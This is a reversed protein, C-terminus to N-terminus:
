ADGMEKMVNQLEAYKETWYAEVQSLGLQEATALFEDWIAQGEAEDKADLVVKAMYSQWQDQIKLLMDAEETGALPDLKTFAAFDDTQGELEFIRARVPDNVGDGRAGCCDSTMAGVWRYRNGGTYEQWAAYGENEMLDQAKGTAIMWTNDPGTWEWHLDEIGKNVNMQAEETTLFEYLMIARDPYECNKTIVLGTWGDLDYHPNFFEGVDEAAFFDLGWYNYSPDVSQIGAQGDIIRWGPGASLFLNGNKNDADQFEAGSGDFDASNVIGDKILQNILMLTDLYIPDRAVSTIVGDNELYKHRGGMSRYLMNVGSDTANISYADWILLPSTLEPHLEKAKYTADLVDELTAMSPNGMEELIDQRCYYAAGGMILTNEWDPDDMKSRDYAMGPLYYLTGGQEWRYYGHGSEYLPLEKMEPCYEEILEDLGYLMGENMMTGLTNQTTDNFFVMDPLDNTSIMLNLEEQTDSIAQTINLHVGTEQELWRSYADQGWYTIVAGPDNLYLDLEVVEDKYKPFTLSEDWETAPIEELETQGEAASEESVASSQSAEATSSVAESLTSSQQSATSSSDGGSSGCATALLAIAVALAAAGARKMRKM